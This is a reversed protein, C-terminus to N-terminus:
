LQKKIVKHICGETAGDGHSSLIVVQHQIITKGPLPVSKNPQEAFMKCWMRLSSFSFLLIAGIARWQLHFTHVIQKKYNSQAFPSFPEKTM